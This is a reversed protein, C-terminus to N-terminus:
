IDCNDIYYGMITAYITNDDCKINLWVGHPVLLNLGIFDRASKSQIEATIITDIETTSTPSNATYLITKSSSAGIGNDGALLIDTIVFCHDNKPVILNYGTNIVTLIASYASSFNLRGVILEGRTSVKASIDTGLDIINTKIM